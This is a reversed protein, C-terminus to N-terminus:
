WIRYKLLVIVIALTGTGPMLFAVVACSQREALWCLVEDQLIVFRPVEPFWEQPTEPRPVVTRHPRHDPFWQRSPDRSQFGSDQLIRPRPVVTWLPRQGRSRSDRLSEPRSVVTQLIEPRPVATRLSRQDPFWQRLYLPPRWSPEM